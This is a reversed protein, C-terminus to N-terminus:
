EKFGYIEWAHERCVHLEKFKWNKDRIMILEKSFRFCGPCDCLGLLRKIKM